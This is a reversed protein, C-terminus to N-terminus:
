IMDWNERKAGGTQEAHASGPQGPADSGAEHRVTTATAAWRAALAGATPSTPGTTKGTTTGTSRATRAATAMRIAPLEASTNGDHGAHPRRRGQEPTPATAISARTGPRKAAGRKARERGPKHHGTQPRQTEGDIAGFTAARNRRQSAAAYNARPKEGAPARLAGAPEARRRRPQESVEQGAAPSIAVAWLAGAGRGAERDSRARRRERPASARRPQM